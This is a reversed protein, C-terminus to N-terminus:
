KRRLVGVSRSSGGGGGLVHSGSGGGGLVDSLGGGNGHGGGHYAGFWVFVQSVKEFVRIYVHDTFDGGHGHGQGYLWM